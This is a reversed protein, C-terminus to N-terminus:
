SSYASAQKMIITTNSHSKKGISQVNKHYETINNFEELGMSRQIFFTTLATLCAWTSIATILQKKGGISWSLGRNEMSLEMFNSAM